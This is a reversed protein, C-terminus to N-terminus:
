QFAQGLYLNELVVQYPFCGFFISEAPALRMAFQNKHGLCYTQFIAQLCGFNVQNLWRRVYLVQFRVELSVFVVRM